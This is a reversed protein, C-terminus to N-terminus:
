HIDFVQLSAASACLASSLEPLAVLCLQQVSERPVLNYYLSIMM